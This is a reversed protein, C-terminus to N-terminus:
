RTPSIVNSLLWDKVNQSVNPSAMLDQVRNEIASPRLQPSTFWVILITLLTCVAGTVIGTLLITWLTGRYQAESDRRIQSLNFKTKQAQEQLESVSQRFVQVVAALTEVEKSLNQRQLKAAAEQQASRKMMEVQNM